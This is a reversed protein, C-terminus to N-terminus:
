FQQFRERSITTFLDPWVFSRSPRVSQRGMCHKLRCQRVTFVYFTNSVDAVVQIVDRKVVSVDNADDDDDATNDRSSLYPLLTSSGHHWGLVTDAATQCVDVYYDYYYCLTARVPRLM